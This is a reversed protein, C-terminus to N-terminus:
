ERIKEGVRDKKRQRERTGALTCYRLVRMMRLLFFFFLYSFMVVYNDTPTLIILATTSTALTVIDGMQGTLPDLLAIIM